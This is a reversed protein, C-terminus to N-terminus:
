KERKNGNKPAAPPTTFGPSKMIYRFINQGNKRAETSKHIGAILLVSMAQRLFSGIRMMRIASKHTQTYIATM